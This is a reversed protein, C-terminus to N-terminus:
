LLVSIYIGNKYANALIFGGIFLFIYKHGYNAGTDQISMIDCSPFLIIPLLATVAIPVVESIWWIAMWLIIGMLRLGSLGM